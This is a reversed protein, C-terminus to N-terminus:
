GSKKFRKLFGFASSKEQKAKQLNKDSSGAFQNEALRQLVSQNLKCAHNFYVESEEYTSIEKRTFSICTHGLRIESGEELPRWPRCRHGDVKTGNRSELDMVRFQDSAPDFYIELHRQSIRPDPITASLSTDRGLALPSSKGVPYWVGQNQGNLVVITAM